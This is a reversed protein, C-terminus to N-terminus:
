LGERGRARHCPPEQRWLPRPLCDTAGAKPLHHGTRRHAPHGVRGACLPVEHHEREERDIYCDASLNIYEGHEKSCCGTSVLYPYYKAIDKITDSKVLHHRGDKGYVYLTLSKLKEKIKEEDGDNGIMCFHDYFDCKGSFISM